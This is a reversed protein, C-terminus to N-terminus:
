ERGSFVVDYEIVHRVSMFEDIARQAQLKRRESLWPWLAEIVLLANATKGAEYYWIEKGHGDPLHRHRIKGVGAIALFKLIPEETRQGISFRLANPHGYPNRKVGFYGEGEYFGAAWAVEREDM